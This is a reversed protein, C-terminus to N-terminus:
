EVVSVEIDSIREIFVSPDEKHGISLPNLTIILAVKTLAGVPKYCGCGPWEVIKSWTM